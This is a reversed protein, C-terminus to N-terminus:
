SVMGPVMENKEEPTNSLDDGYGSGYRKEPICVLLIALLGSGFPLTGWMVDQWHPPMQKTNVPAAPPVGDKGWVTIVGNDFEDVQRWGAFHLLPDYYPDSVFVWKLGYRNAHRLMTRLSELGDVGFYKADSLAGGGFRTLEPLMRASNSAGDVSSADTYIALESMYNTGFGLTIYRYKDHQDRNLWNAVSQVDLNSDNAPRFHAWSAALACTFAALLALVVAAPKRYRGVLDALLTGLIPLALLTAWYAFREFTLVDFARGLLWYGVPTTGGLGFLFVLWFSLLLPRLRPVISGRIIIFPLALMMAGWPVFFYNTLLQPSLIYSARSPHPIPTQTVPYRILAIWFPLIVVAVAANILIVAVVTRATIAAASSEDGSRREMYALAVLPLAFFLSGFIFTAHHVSAAAAFLVIAKLFSRKGGYRLWNYLYPLANLYVPAAATTALQGASYVLFSETGVFIAALAAYSAARPSVWLLAFRYVGVVLLLIAAFQVAMYGLNLGLPIAMVAVWQQALPPYTTQSFGAFWKANWPNFWHHLYHSAFFIHFNTDYSKLPLERLMMPLHVATAVLLIFSM